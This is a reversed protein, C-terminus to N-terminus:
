VCSTKLLKDLKELDETQALFFEALRFLGELKGFKETKEACRGCIGGCEEKCSSCLLHLCPVCIENDKSFKFCNECKFNEEISKLRSTLIELLHNIEPDYDKKEYIVKTEVKPNNENSQIIFEMKQIIFNKQEIQTKYYNENKTLKEHQEKYLGLEQEISFYRAHWRAAEEKTIDTLLKSGNLTESRKSLPLNTSGRKITDQASNLNELLKFNENELKEFRVTLLDIQNQMLKKVKDYELLDKASTSQLQEIQNICLDLKSNYEKFLGENSALKCKSKDLESQLESNQKHLKIIQRQFVTLKSEINTTQENAVRRKEESKKLTEESEKLEEEKFSLDKAAQALKSELIKQLNQTNKLQSEYDQAIHSLKSYNESISKNKQKLEAIEGLLSDIYGLYEDNKQKSLFLEFDKYKNRKGIDRKIDIETKKRNSSLTEGMYEHSVPQLKTEEDALIKTLDSSYSPELKKGQFGYSPTSLSNHKFKKRITDGLKKVQFNDCSELALDRLENVDPSLANPTLQPKIPNRPSFLSKPKKIAPLSKKQKPDLEPNSNKKM